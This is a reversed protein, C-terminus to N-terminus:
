DKFFQMAKKIVEYGNMFPMEIDMFILEYKKCTKCKKSDDGKSTYRDIIKQYTQNGDFAKDM